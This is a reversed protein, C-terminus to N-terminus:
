NHTPAHAPCMKELQDVAYTNDDLATVDRHCAAVLQELFTLEGYYAYNPNVSYAPDQIADDFTTFRVGKSRWDRLITALMVADFAGMHLLLIQKISRGILVKAIRDASQLRREADDIIHKKLWTISQEDRQSFCREYAENWAWDDYTFSVQAIRYGHRALYNRVANRKALTEGESLYPYRFVRRQAILPSVSSLSQLARDMKAINEIFQRTTSAKLDMHDFTHNGLPYGAKLWATFVGQEDPDNPDFGNSFGYVQQVGNERFTQVMSQAIMTRTTDDVLDGNLPLDDVTVAVTISGLVPASTPESVAANRQAVRTRSGRSELEDYPDLGISFVSKRVQYHNLLQQLQRYLATGDLAMYRPMYFANYPDNIGALDVFTNKNMIHKAVFVKGGSELTEDIRGRLRNAWSPSGKAPFVYDNLVTVGPNRPLRALCDFLLEYNMDGYWDERGLAVFIDRPGLYQQIAAVLPEPFNRSSIQSFRINAYVNWGILVLVIGAFLKLGRWERERFLVGVCILAPFFNLVWYYSTEPEWVILIASWFIISLVSVAFLRSTRLLRLLDQNLHFRRMIEVLLLCGAAGVVAYIMRIENGSAHVELFGQLENSQLLSGTIGITTQVLTDPFRLLIPHVEDLAATTWRLFSPEGHTATWWTFLYIPIVLGTIAASWAIAHLLRRRPLEQDFMLVLVGPPVLAVAAQHLMIAVVLCLGAMTLHSIPIPKDTETSWMSLYIVFALFVLPYPQNQSALHWFSPSFAVLLTGITGFVLSGTVVSLLECFFLLAICSVIIGAVQFPVTTPHGIIATLNVLTKQLPIWLLHHPNINTRLDPEMAFLRYRYGDGDYLPPRVALYLAFCMAATVAAVIRAKHWSRWSSAIDTVESSVVEDLDMISHALESQAVRDGHRLIPTGSCAGQSLDPSSLGPAIGDRQIIHLIASFCSFM